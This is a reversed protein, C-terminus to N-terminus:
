CNIFLQLNLFAQIIWIEPKQIAKKDRKFISKSLIKVKFLRIMFLMRKLNTNIKNLNM